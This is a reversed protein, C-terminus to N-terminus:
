GVIAFTKPTVDVDAGYAPNQKLLRAFSELRNCLSMTFEYSHDSSQELM